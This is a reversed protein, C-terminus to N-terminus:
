IGVQEGGLADDGDFVPLILVRKHVSQGRPVHQIVPVPEVLAVIFPRESEAQFLSEGLGRDAAVPAARAM